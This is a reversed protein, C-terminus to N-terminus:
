QTVGELTLKDMLNIMSCNVLQKDTFEKVTAPFTASLCMKQTSNAPCFKIINEVISVMEASLLKDAEDLVM